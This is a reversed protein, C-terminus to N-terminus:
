HGLPKKCISDLSNSVKKLMMNETPMTETLPEAMKGTHGIIQASAALINKNCRGDTYILSSSIDQPNFVALKLQYRLQDDAIVAHIVNKENSSVFGVGKAVPKSCNGGVIKSIILVKRQSDSIGIRIKFYTDALDTNLQWIGQINNWPFPQAVAWPWTDIGGQIKIDCSYASSASAIFLFSLSLILSKM